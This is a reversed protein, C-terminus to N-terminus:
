NLFKNAALIPAAGSVALTALPAYNGIVFVPNTNTAAVRIFDGTNLPAKSNRVSIFKPNNTQVAQGSTKNPLSWDNTELSANDDVLISISSTGTQTVNDIKLEGNNVRMARGALDNFGLTGNSLKTTGGYLMESAINKFTFDNIFVPTTTRETSIIFCGDFECKNIFSAKGGAVTQIDYLRNQRGTIAKFKCNDVTINKGGGLTADPGFFVATSTIDKFDGNKVVLDDVNTALVAITPYTDSVTGAGKAKVGDIIISGANRCQIYNGASHGTELAPSDLEIDTFRMTGTHKGGPQTADIANLYIIHEGCRSMKTGKIDLGSRGGQFINHGGNIIQGGRVKLNIGTGYNALVHVIGNGLVAPTNDRNGDLLPNILTINPKSAAFLADLQVGAKTKIWGYFKIISNESAFVTSSVEFTGEPIVVNKYKLLLNNIPLYNDFGVVPLAGVMLPNVTQNKNLRLVKTADGAISVITYNDITEAPVVDWLASGGDGAASFGNVYITTNVPINPAVKADLLSPFQDFKKQLVGLISNNVEQQTKGSADVVFSAEWGGQVAIQALRQMLYNYYEDLQDLAVGQKRIEEMLYARLENDKDDVYTKLNDIYTKQEGHLRDIYLRLLWDTVGLEQLKLWVRDFDGNVSQPRFSNNYSQYDTNRSFPTNRQITIKKGTTPATGFVVAGNSLLWSGIAPEIDDVLVILHEKKECYFELAFSTTTGNATYETYPTQESVAM